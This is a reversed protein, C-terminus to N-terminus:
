VGGTITEENNFQRLQKSLVSHRDPVTGLIKEACLLPVISDAPRKSLTTPKHQYQARSRNSRTPNFPLQHVCEIIWPVFFADNRHEIPIAVAVTQRPHKARELADVERNTEIAASPAKQSNPPFPVLGSRTPPSSWRSNSTAIARRDCPFL